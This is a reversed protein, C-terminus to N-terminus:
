SDILLLNTAQWLRGLVEVVGCLLLELLILKAICSGESLQTSSAVSGIRNDALLWDALLVVQVLRRVLSLELCGLLRQVILRLLIGLTLVLGQVLLSQLHLLRVALILLERELVRLGLLGAVEVALLAVWCLLRRL